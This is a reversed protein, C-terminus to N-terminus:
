DPLYLHHQDIYRAVANGVLPAVCRHAVIQSRVETASIPLAPMQIQLFRHKLGMKPDFQRYAGTSDIRIAVCIIALQVLAQWEHWSPLARAQDEGMLLFLEAVPNEAVLERLSDFTYSPGSRQLERVDLLALPVDAFALQAMAMRHHAPSLQRTKHWAHGTPLVRLEDLNLQKIAAKALAVHAQHPPDFAGGFM